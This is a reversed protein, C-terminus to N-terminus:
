PLLRDRESTTPLRCTEYRGWVRYRVRAVLRYALDLPLAPLWRLAYTWRWPRGLHRAMHLFAKSRVFVRGEAVYVVTDLSDPIDPHEARLRAATEGQLPAFRLAAHRDRAMLWQVTRSCLGCVGDYLVVYPPLSPTQEHSSVDSQIGPSGAVDRGRRRPAPM